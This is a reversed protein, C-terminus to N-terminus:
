VSCASVYLIAHDFRRLKRKTPRTTGVAVNWYEGVLVHNKSMEYPPNGRTGTYDSKRFTLQARKEWVASPSFCKGQPCNKPFVHAILISLGEVM